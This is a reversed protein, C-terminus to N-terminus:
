EKSGYQTFRNKIWYLRALQQEVWRLVKFDIVQNTYPMFKEYDGDELFKSYGNMLSEINGNLWEVTNPEDGDFGTVPIRKDWKTATKLESLSHSM